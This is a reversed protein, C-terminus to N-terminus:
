KKKKTKVIGGKKQKTMYEKYSPIKVINDITEDSVGTNWSQMEKRKSIKDSTDNVYKEKTKKISPAGSLIGKITKKTKIKNPTEIIKYNGSASVTKVRKTAGGDEAKILKKRSKM